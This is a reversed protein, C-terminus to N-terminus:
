IMRITLEAVAAAFLCTGLLPCVWERWLRKIKSEKRFINRDIKSLYESEKIEQNTFMKIAEKILQLM